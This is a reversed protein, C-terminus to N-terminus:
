LGLDCDSQSAYHYTYGYGWDEHVQHPSLLYYGPGLAVPQCLLFYTYCYGRDEPVQLLPAAM